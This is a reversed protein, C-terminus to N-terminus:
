DALKLTLLLAAATPRGERPYYGARRGTEVFGARVYLALAAANDDAVELHLSVAGQERAAQAAAAVLRSGTGRRRAEPRIALTLIEAEDVVTRILIFGDADGLAAVGPQGCLTEFTAADWPREFASAHIDAM